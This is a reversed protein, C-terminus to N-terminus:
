LTGGYVFVGVVGVVIAGLLVVSSLVEGATLKFKNM